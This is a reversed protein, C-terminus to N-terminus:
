SPDSDGRDRTRQEPVAAPRDPPQEDPTTRSLLAKIKALAGGSLYRSFFRVGERVTAIIDGRGPWLEQAVDAPTDGLLADLAFLAVALDDMQGLVP